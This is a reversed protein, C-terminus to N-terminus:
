YAVGGHHSCTGRSHQSFSYTGDACQASMGPPPGAHSWSPGHVDAGYENTYCHHTVLDNEDPQSCSASASNLGIVLAAAAIITKMM